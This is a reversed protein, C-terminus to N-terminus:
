NRFPMSLHLGIIGNAFPLCVATSGAALSNAFFKLFNIELTLEMRPPPPFTRNKELKYRKFCCISVFRLVLRLRTILNKFMAASNWNRFVARRALHFLVLTFSVSIALHFGVIARYSATDNRGVFTASVTAFTYRCFKPPNIRSNGRELSSSKEIQLASFFSRSRRLDARRARSNKLSVRIYIERLTAHRVIERREREKM